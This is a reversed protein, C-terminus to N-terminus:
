SCQSNLFPPIFSQILSYIFLYIFSYTFSDIFILSHIFLIMNMGCMVVNRIFLIVLHIVSHIFSHIFSNFVFGHDRLVKQDVGRVDGIQTAESHRVLTVIKSYEDTESSVYDSVSFGLQKLAM